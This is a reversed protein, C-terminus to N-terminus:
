IKEEDFKIKERQVFRSIYDKYIIKMIIEDDSYNIFSTESFYKM